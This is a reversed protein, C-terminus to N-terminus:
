MLPGLGQALQTAHVATVGVRGLALILTAVTADGAPAFVLATRGTTPTIAATADSAADAM